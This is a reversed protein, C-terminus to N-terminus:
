NKRKLNEIVQAAVRYMRSKGSRNSTYFLYKGDLSVSPCIENGKSNIKEGMNIANKWKGFEDKFSVYLDGSGFGNARNVSAFIMYFIVIQSGIIKFLSTPFKM